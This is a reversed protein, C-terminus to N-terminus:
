RSQPGESRTATVTDAVVSPWINFPVRAPRARSPIATQLLASGDPASGTMMARNVEAFLLAVLRLFAMVSRQRRDPSMERFNLKEPRDGELPHLFSLMQRWLYLEPDADSQREGTLVGSGGDARGAPSAAAPPRRTSSSAPEARDSRRPLYM